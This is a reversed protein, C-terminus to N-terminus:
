MRKFILYPYILAAITLCKHIMLGTTTKIITSHTCPHPFHPGTKLKRAKFPSGNKTKV